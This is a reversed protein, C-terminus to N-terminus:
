KLFRLCFKANAPSKRSRVNRKRGAAINDFEAWLRLRREREDTLDEELQAIRDLSTPPEPEIVEHIGNDSLTTARIELREM